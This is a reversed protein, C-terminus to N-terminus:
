KVEKRYIFYKRGPRTLGNKHEEAKERSSFVEDVSVMPPDRFDGNWNEELVVYVFM